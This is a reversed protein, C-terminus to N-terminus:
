IHIQYLLASLYVMFYIVLNLSPPNFALQHFITSPFPIYCLLISSARSFLLSDKCEACALPIFSILAYHPQQLLRVSSVSITSHPVTYSLSYNEGNKFSITSKYETNIVGLFMVYQSVQIKWLSCM